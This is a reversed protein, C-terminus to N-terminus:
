ERHRYAVSPGPLDAGADDLAIKVWPYEAM